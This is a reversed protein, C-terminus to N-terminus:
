SAAPLRLVFCSGTPENPEFWAEGDQAEALGRVISLGLGTGQGGHSSPPQAFKEFLQGRFEEAVGPGHDRVRLEVSEGESRAEVEIPSEGYKLANSVYNMLIQQVHDPDAHVSLEDGGRIAIEPGRDPFAEVVRRIAEMVEIDQPRTELVGAEIRSMTLLDDVLRALREAQEEVIAVQSRRQEDTLRPWFRLLTSSFGLISTLPTRLEHSAIAVFDSKLEDSKRLEENAQRLEAASRELEREARRREALELQAAEYLRANELALSAMHGFRALLAIEDASFPTNEELRVLGLVGVIDEGARLPIGVAAKVFDFGTRRGEWASYDGVALAEGQQWVRGALGEGRGLSYGIYSAFVGTGARVVLREGTEDVVYLYAHPTHALAAARALIAELLSTPDLRSVLGVTTEQLAALEDHQRQLLDESRKRDGIDQVQSLFYRAGERQDALVCRSLLTWAVDGDPRVFRAEGRYIQKEGALAQREYAEEAERDMPHTVTDWTTSLLAEEDRGVLECFAPNVLLFHGSSDTVAMGISARDFASRFLGEAPGNEGPASRRQDQTQV